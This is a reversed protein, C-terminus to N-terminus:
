TYIVEAGESFGYVDNYPKVIAPALEITQRIWSVMLFVLVSKVGSYLCILSVYFFTHIM